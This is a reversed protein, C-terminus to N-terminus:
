NRCAQTMMVVKPIRAKPHEQRPSSDDEQNEIASDEQVTEVLVMGEFTEHLRDGRGSCTRSTGTRQELELKADAGSAEELM